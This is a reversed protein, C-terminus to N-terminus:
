RLPTGNQILDVLMKRDLRVIEGAAFIWIADPSELVSHGNGKDDSFEGAAWVGDGLAVRVWQDGASKRPAILSEGSVYRYPEFYPEKVAAFDVPTHGPTYRGRQCHTPGNAVKEPSGRIIEASARDESPGIGVIQGEAVRRWPNPGAYVETATSYVLEKGLGLMDDAGGAGRSFPFGQEASGRGAAPGEVPFRWKGDAFCGLGTPRKINERAYFNYPVAAGMYPPSGFLVWVQGNDLAAIRRIPSATGLEEPSMYSWRNTRVNYRSIGQPGYVGWSQQAYGLWLEGGVVAASHFAPNKLPCKPDLFRWVEARQDFRHVGRNSTVLVEGNEAVMQYLEDAGVDRAVDWLHWKGTQPDVISVLGALAVVWNGSAHQANTQSFLLLKDGVRALTSPYETSPEAKQESGRFPHPLNSEPGRAYSTWRGEALRAVVIGTTKPRYFDPYLGMGFAVQDGAVGQGERFGIWLQGDIAAMATVWRVPRGDVRDVRQWRHSSKDFRCLGGPGWQKTEPDYIDVCAAWLSDGCALLHTVINGALGDATTFRTAPQGDALQAEVYSQENLRRLIDSWTVSWGTKPRNINRLFPYPQVARWLRGDFSTEVVTAALIPADIGPGVKEQFEPLFPNLVGPGVLRSERHWPGLKPAFGAPRVAPWRDAATVRRAVEGTARDFLVGSPGYDVAIHKETVRASRPDGEYVFVRVAAPPIALGSPAVSGGTQKRLELGAEHPSDAAVISAALLPLVTALIAVLTKRARM